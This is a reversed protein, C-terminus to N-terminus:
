QKYFINYDVNSSPATSGNRTTTVAICLATSHKVPLPNVVNAGGGAPIGFSYVPATTGLTVGSAQTNFFQVYVASTNPNFIYWGYVSTPTNATGIDTKTNGISGTAVDMGGNPEASQAVWLNGNKGVQLPEYDGDTNGASLDAPTAKRVALAMVGTDGSAHAADEAKGLNTAATGPIISTVDVDGIDVGSNAALKGIANTGAPLASRVASIGVEGNADVNLGRENGAADRVVTHLSRNGSMRLAGADGEDVSDPSVNDFQAGFMAVKDTAPTFAADDTKIVDDILQLSTLAAGNEQVVFTGANTVAHANVTIANRSGSIQIEGNADINLGRENGAADRINIYLNRNGSMRVAGADGEDVSDPSTDDKQAGFMVVKDTAPTFAADDTKIADDILEVSTKVASITSETAAGSPLPLSTASVPQANSLAPQDTALVVRLTSASKNGSNVDITTPFVALLATIRQLLRKFLGNLGSTSTDTSAPSENTAGLKAQLDDDSAITVPSSASKTTQGNPNSPRYAM